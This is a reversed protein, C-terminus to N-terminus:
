SVYGAGGLAGLITQTLTDRDQDSLVGESLSPLAIIHVRHEEALARNNSGMARDTILFKRAYTGLYRPAAATTLQDIGDKKNAKNGTKVEAIGVQNGCRMVLDIELAGGHTVSTMREDVVSFLADYILQEAADRCLGTDYQGLHAHLYDDLDLLAPIEDQTYQLVGSAGFRYRYLLSRAGESQLYVWPSGKEQALAHAALAMPKTGGTLNFLLDTGAWQHATVFGALAEYIAPLNYPPIDKLMIANEVLPALRDAVPLTRTTSVLVVSAPELYRV